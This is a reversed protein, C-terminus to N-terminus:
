SPACMGDCESDGDPGCNNPGWGAQCCFSPNYWPSGPPCDIMCAPPIECGGFQCAYGDGYGDTCNDAELSCECYLVMASAHLLQVASLIIGAGLVMVVVVKRLLV